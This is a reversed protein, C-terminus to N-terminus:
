SNTDFIETLEVMEQADNKETTNDNRLLELNERNFPPKLFGFLKLQLEILLQTFPILICKRGKRSYIHRGLEGIEIQQPGAANVSEDHKSEISELVVDVLDTRHIPQTRTKIDPFVRTISLKGIMELLKNGEDYVTSPRLNVYHAESNKVIEEAEKKTQFFPHEVKYVGLASIYIIKGCEVAEVINKTGEVHVQRYQEERYFGPALGISHVVVDFYEDIEFEGTVDFEYDAGTRDLYKVENGDQELREGVKSGIFGKGAVLVKM